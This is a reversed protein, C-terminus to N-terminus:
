QWSTLLLIVNSSWEYTLAMQQKSLRIETSITSQVALDFISIGHYGSMANKEEILTLTYLDWEMINSLHLLQTANEGCIADFQM